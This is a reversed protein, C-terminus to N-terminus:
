ASWVRPILHLTLYTAVWGGAVYYWFIAAVVVISRNRSSLPAMWVQLPALLFIAIGVVTVLLHFGTMVWYVSGFANTDWRFDAAALDGAALAVVVLGAAATLLTGVQLRGVGEARVQTHAWAAPAIGLVAIVVALGPVTLDPLVVGEPPWSTARQRYYLSAFMLTAHMSSLVTVTGIAGWWVTSRGAVRPQTRTTRPSATM